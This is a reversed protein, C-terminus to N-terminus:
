ALEKGLQALAPRPYRQLLSHVARHCLHAPSNERVLPQPLAPYKLILRRWNHVILCRLVARAQPPLDAPLSEALPLLIGLLARYGSAENPEAQACLWAPAHDGPLALLGAPVKADAPGVYVRPMVPCFGLAAMTEPAEAGTEPAIVLQWGDAGADPGAYIRPSAAASESLGRPSLSHRSTRGTKESVLWGDNRLRHLAVRTAEPKIGLDAMISSLVPGSISQGPKQALDGFLSVMLSWVRKGGLARLAATQEAFDETPM